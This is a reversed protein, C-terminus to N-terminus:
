KVVVFKNKKAFVEMAPTDKLEIFTGSPRKYKVTAIEEEKVPKENSM